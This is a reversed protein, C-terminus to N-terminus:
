LAIYDQQHNITYTCLKVHAETESELIKKEM